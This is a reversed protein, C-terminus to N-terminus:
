QRRLTVMTSSNRLRVGNCGDHETVTGTLTNGNLTVQGETDIYCDNPPFPYLPTSLSDYTEAFQFGTLGVVMSGLVGGRASVSGFSPHNSQVLTAPGGAQIGTTQGFPSSGASLTWTRAGDTQVWTGVLDNATVPGSPNTSSAGSCSAAGTCFLALTVACSAWRKM